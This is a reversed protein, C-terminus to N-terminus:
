CGPLSRTRRSRCWSKARLRKPAARRTKCIDVATMPRQSALQAQRVRKEEIRKWLMFQLEPLSRIVLIVGRVSGDFFGASDFFAQGRGYAPRLCDRM